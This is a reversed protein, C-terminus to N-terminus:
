GADGEPADDPKMLGLLTTAMTCAKAALLVGMAPSMVQFM